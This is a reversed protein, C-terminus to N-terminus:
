LGVAADMMRYGVGSLKTVLDDFDCDPTYSGVLARAEARLMEMKKNMAKTEKRKRKGKGESRPRAAAPIEDFLYGGSSEVADFLHKHADIIGAYVSYPLYEDKNLAGEYERMVRLFKIEVDHMLVMRQFEDYRAVAETVDEPLKWKVGRLFAISEKAKALVPPSVPSVSSGGAKLYRRPKPSSFSRARVPM